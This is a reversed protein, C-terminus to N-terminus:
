WRGASAGEGYLRDTHQSRFEFITPDETMREVIVTLREPLWHDPGKGIREKTRAVQIAWPCQAHEPQTDFRAHTWGACDQKNLLPHFWKPLFEVEYLRHCKTPVGKSGVRTNIAVRLGGPPQYCTTNGLQYIAVTSSHRTHHHRMDIAAVATNRM